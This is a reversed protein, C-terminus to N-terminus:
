FSDADAWRFDWSRFDEPTGVLPYVILPMISQRRIYGMTWNVKSDSVERTPVYVEAAGMQRARDMIAALLSRINRNTRPFVWYDGVLARTMNLRETFNLVAWGTLQGNDDRLVIHDYDQGPRAFRWHLYELTRDVVCALGETARSLFEPLEGLVETGSEVYLGRRIKLPFAANWVIRALPALTSPTRLLSDWEIPRGLRDWHFIGTFGLKRLYISGSLENPTGYVIEVGRERACELLFRVLRSFIGRGQHSQRTETRGIEASLVSRGGVRLQKPTICATGVLQGADYVGAYVGNGAPNKFLWWDLESITLSRDFNEYMHSLDDGLRDLDDFGVTKIELESM